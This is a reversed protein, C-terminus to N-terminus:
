SMNTSSHGWIMLEDKITSDNELCVEKIEHSVVGEMPENPKLSQEPGGFGALPIKASMTQVEM